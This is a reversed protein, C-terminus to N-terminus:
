YRLENAGLGLPLPLYGKGGRATLLVKKTRGIERSVNGTSVNISESKGPFERHAQSDGVRLILIISSDFGRFDVINTPLNPTGTMELRPNQHKSEPPHATHSSQIYLYIYIYIHIYTQICTHIYAHTYIHIHTYMCIYIYTYM